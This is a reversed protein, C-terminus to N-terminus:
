SGLPETWELARQGLCYLLRQSNASGLPAEQLEFVTIDGSSARDVSWSRYLNAAIFRANSTRGDVLALTGPLLQPEMRLIDGSTVVREANRWTLGGVGGAVDSPDPGDLYIFDPVVDPVTEYYHCCRGAFTGATAASFHLTAIDKLHAPLMSRTRELFDSSTDVSHLQFPTSSRVNPKVPASDWEDRNKKLADAMVVTSFGVGFELVTFVKRTRIARHLRALDSWKPPIRKADKKAAADLADFLGEKALYESGESNGDERSFSDAIAKPNM